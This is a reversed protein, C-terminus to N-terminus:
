GEIREPAVVRIISSDDEAGMGRVLGALYEQEAAAALPVGLGAKRAADTVIGM